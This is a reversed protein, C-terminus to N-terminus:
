QIYCDEVKLEQFYQLTRVFIIQLCDLTGSEAISNSEFLRERYLTFIRLHGKFVPGLCIVYCSLILM